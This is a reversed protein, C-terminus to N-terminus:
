PTGGAPVISEAIQQTVAEILPEFRDQQYALFTAPFMWILMAVALPRVTRARRSGVNVPLLDNLSFLWRIFSMRAVRRRVQWRGYPEASLARAISANSAVPAVHRWGFRVAMEVVADAVTSLSLRRRTM